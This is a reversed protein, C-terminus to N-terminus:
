YFNNPRYFFIKAFKVCLFLVSFSLKYIQAFLNFYKSMKNSDETLLFYLGNYM